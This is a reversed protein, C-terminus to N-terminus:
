RIGNCGVICKFSACSLSVHLAEPYFCVKAIADSVAADVEQGSLRSTKHIGNTSCFRELSRVSFGRIGPYLQQLYNSLQEHTWRETEVKERVIDELGELSAM